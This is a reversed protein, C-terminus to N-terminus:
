MSYRHQNLEGFLTKPHIVILFSIYQINAKLTWLFCCISDHCLITKEQAVSFVM